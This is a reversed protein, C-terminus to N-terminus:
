SETDVPAASWPHPHEARWCHGRVVQGRQPAKQGAPPVLPRRAPEDSRWWWAGCAPTAAWALGLAEYRATVQPSPHGYRNRRGAQVVVQEPQVASLFPLTSSTQSGHHPAVLVTAKLPSHRAVLDAEQDAEIDATLLLSNGGAEASAGRPMGATAQAQVKLVCAHANPEGEAGPRLPHLWEFRVGDWTWSQGAVCDRFPLPAAGLRPAARRLPHDVPLSGVVQAVDLGALVSPAGGVHDSDEHSLVLTDLRAVGLAELTPVIHRRGADDHEGLRPGTDFLLAHGQTQVLVATGQGVDLALATFQGAAPAPLLRWMPPVLLVPLMVLAWGWRWGRPGSWAWLLGAVAAWIGLWAPPAAWTSVAAPWTAAWSLADLTAQVLSADLSWLPPMAMGLLALPTILLDFWPVAALNVLVGALSVQHFCLVAVPAMAVSLVVQVRALQVFPRWLALWGMPGGPSEAESSAPGDGAAMLVMVCLFSLWFGPQWLAWPDFLTVWAMVWLATLPWPWSRGSLSLGTLVVMTWVTRQAPLGWGALLAYATCALCAAVMAAQHAPWLHVLRHSRGWTRRVVWAVWWGVVAIHSGSIAMLHAVGTRRFVEWDRQDMASQDGVTLGALVGASVRDTVRSQIRERLGARWRAIAGHVTWGHAAAVLNLDGAKVQGVAGNGREWAFLEPDPGGPNLAGDPRHWRAAAQWTDGPTPPAGAPWYLRVRQIAGLRALGAANVPEEGWAHAAPRRPSASRPAASWALVDADVQWAGNDLPTPLSDIRLLAQARGPALDAPWMAQARAASRWATSGAALLAVAVGLLALRLWPAALNARRALCAVALLGGAGLALVAYVAASPWLGPAAVLGAVGALWAVPVVLGAPWV